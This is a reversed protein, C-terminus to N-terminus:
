LQAPGDPVPLGRASPPHLCGQCSSATSGHTINAKSQIAEIVQDNNINYGSVSATSITTSCFVYQKGNLGSLHCKYYIM